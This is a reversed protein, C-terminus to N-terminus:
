IIPKVFNDAYSKVKVESGSPEEIIYEYGQDTAYQLAEEKRRFKLKIQNKTNDSSTWGTIKSISRSQDQELNTLLWLKTKGLGSQMPNKAINTIKVKM